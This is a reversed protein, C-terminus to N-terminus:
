PGYNGAADRANPVAAPVATAALTAAPVTATPASSAVVVRAPAAEVPAASLPEAQDVARASPSACAAIVVVLGLALLRVPEARSSSDRWSRSRTASRASRAATRRM